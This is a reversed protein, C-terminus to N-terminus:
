SLGSGFILVTNSGGFGSSASMALPLPQRRVEGRLWDVGPSEIPNTLRLTPLLTGSRVAMITIAAELAGAAGLCHGFYSKTSSVPIPHRRGRFATEYANAEAIDNLPTGTGHANVYGIDDGSVEAMEMSLRICDALGSGEKQPATTHFADNTMAWGRLVALVKANRATAGALTELVLVASGEGLNVGNRNQDFPSCPNPDLARLSNFGSLTFPCLPDSGGALIIPVAEDLLMNAALAISMAGSACAVSIACRPGRIGFHEGVADAVHAVPFSAGRLLRGPRRFWAAPDKAIGTDIETLGGVTNAMLVGSERFASRNYGSNAMADQAALVALQDTRSYRSESDEALPPLERIQAISGEFGPYVDKTPQLCCKGSLMGAQLCDM